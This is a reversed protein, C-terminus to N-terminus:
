CRCRARAKQLVGIHKFINSLWLYPFENNMPQELSIHMLISFHHRRAVVAADLLCRGHVVINKWVINYVKHQESERELKVVSESTHSM